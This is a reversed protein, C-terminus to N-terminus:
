YELRKVKDKLKVVAKKSAPKVIEEGNLVYRKEATDVVELMGIGEIKVAGYEKLATLYFDALINLLDDTDSLTFKINNEKLGANLKRTLVRVVERKHKM